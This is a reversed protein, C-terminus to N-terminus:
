RAPPVHALEDPLRPVPGALHSRAQHRSGVGRKRKAVDLDDKMTLVQDASLKAILWHVQAPLADGSDAAGDALFKELREIYKVRRERYPDGTGEFLPDQAISMPEFETQIAAFEDWRGSVKEKKVERVIFFALTALGLVVVAALGMKLLRVQKETFAGTDPQQSQPHM